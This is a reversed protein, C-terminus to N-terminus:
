GMAVFAEFFQKLGEEPPVEEVEYELAFDGEYGVADLQEMIWPFDIKGEGMMTFGYEGGSTPAGDKFHCHVIHEKMIELSARYDTRAHHILNHPEYLVGFFRSGVKEVLEVCLKPQGSLGASHNEIVMYINKEAAYAASRQLWPVIKDLTGPDDNGAAVRVSRAGFFVALDIARCLQELETQQEKPDDSSFGCETFREPNPVQWGHYVWQARRSEQGGGVYTALNAIQLGHAEAAAKIVAPDCEYPFISFHPLRECLDVKKYGAAAIIEFAREPPHHMLAISCTSVRSINM